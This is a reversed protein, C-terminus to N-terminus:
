PSRERLIVPFSKQLQLKPKSGQANPPACQLKTTKTTPIRQAESWKACSSLPVGSFSGSFPAPLATQKKNNIIRKKEQESLKAEPGETEQKKALQTSIGNAFGAQVLETGEIFKKPM